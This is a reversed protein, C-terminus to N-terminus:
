KAKPSIKVPERAKNMNLGKMLKTVGAQSINLNEMVPHSSVGKSPIDREEKSFVSVYETQQNLISAKGKAHSMLVSDKRLPAVGTADRRKSKVYSWFQKAVAQKDKSTEKYEDHKMLDLNLINHAKRLTTAQFSTNPETKRLMVRGRSRIPETGGTSLKRLKRRLGPNKDPPNPREHLYMTM